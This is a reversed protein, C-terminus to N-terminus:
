QSEERRPDGTLRRRNMAIALPNRLAAEALRREEENVALQRPDVVTARTPMRGEHAAMQSAVLAAETENPALVQVRSIRTATEGAKLDDHTATEVEVTWVSNVFARAFASMAHSVASAAEKFTGSFTDALRQVAATIASWDVMPSGCWSCKYRPGCRVRWINDRHCSPCLARELRLLRFLPGRTM